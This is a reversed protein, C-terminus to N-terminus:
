GHTDWRKGVEDACEVGEAVSGKVSRSWRWKGQGGGSWSNSKASRHGRNGEYSAKKM